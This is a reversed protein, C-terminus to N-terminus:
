WPTEEKGCGSAMVGTVRGYACLNVSIIPSGRFGM